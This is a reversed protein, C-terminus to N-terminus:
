DELLLMLRHAGISKVASEADHGTAFYVAGQTQSLGLDLVCWERDKHEFYLEWKYQGARSWDAKRNAWSKRALDRLESLVKSREDKQDPAGNLPMFSYLAIAGDDKEACDTWGFPEAKFYGFPEPEPADMLEQLLAAMRTSIALLDTVSCASKMAANWRGLEHAMRQKQEANM